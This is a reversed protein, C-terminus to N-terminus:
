HHTVILELGRLILVVLLCVALTTGIRWFEGAEGRLIGTLGPQDARAEMLYGQEKGCHPCPGRRNHDSDM